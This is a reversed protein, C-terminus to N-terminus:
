LDRVAQELKATTRDYRNDKGFVLPQGARVKTTGRRPWRRGKPLIEYNGDFRLPLIPVELEQAIVGIGQKFAQQTGDLSRSGEPFLVVSYGRDLYGGIQELSQQISGERDLPFIPILLRLLAAQLRNKFFYDKAAAIVVRRRRLPLMRLMTLSDLHSTHNAIYIVPETPPAFAKVQLRQFLAAIGLLPLQLVIRVQSFWWSEFLSLNFLQPKPSREAAQAMVALDAFTTAASISGEDIFAGIEEEIKSVLELRKLSDLGLDNVLNTQGTIKGPAVAALNAVLLQLPTVDGTGAAPMDAATGAATHLQDVIAQRKVKRTPTRPFDADPWLVIHQIAQHSVLKANAQKIAARVAEEPEDSLVVATLVDKGALQSFIVVSDRIAPFGALQTEIDEPYINLGSESLLMNKKRGTIFLFGDDDIRGIDGTHFWGDHLVAATERSSHFYGAFVNAGGLLIEGDAALQLAQGPLCRGVSGPKHARLGNYTAIPSTETLGYGQMVRIGLTNWFMELNAPLAAGGVAVLKLSQGLQWYLGQFMYRRVPRPLCRVLRLQGELIKQYHSAAAKEMIRRHLLSLFAPVTVIVNITEAQLAKVIQYPRVSAVYVVSSGSVFPALFGVTQEFMHSLPIMSLLRYGSGIQWAEKLAMVNSAVNRHSLVVGKPDGTSGSTFVIELTDEPEQPEYHHRPTQQALVEGLQEIEIMAFGTSSLPKYVTKFLIKLRTKHAVTDIFAQPSNVDIPVIIIGSRACAIYVALWWPGNPACIGVADHPQLGKAQLLGAILNAERSLKAYTWTQRRFRKREVAFIQKAYKKVASDILETVTLETM